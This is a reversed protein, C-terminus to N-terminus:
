LHRPIDRQQHLIRIVEIGYATKKYFIFHSGVTGRRYDPRVHNMDRGHDPNQVFSELATIIQGHYRDAQDPSWTECTYAWIEVLDSRALPTLRYENNTESM